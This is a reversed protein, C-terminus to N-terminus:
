RVSRHLLNSVTMKWDELTKVESAKSNRLIACIGSKQPVLQLFRELGMKEVHKAENKTAM